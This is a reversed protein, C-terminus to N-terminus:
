LCIGTEQASGQPMFEVKWISEKDLKTENWLDNYAIDLVPHHLDPALESLPKLVFPYEVIDKRPVRCQETNIVSDGYLLLDLDLKKAKLKGSNRSGECQAEISKLSLNLTEINEDTTFRCVLNYFDAGSFGVPHSEYVSSIMMDDYRSQLEQVAFAISAERDQNSGIAVFVTQKEPM